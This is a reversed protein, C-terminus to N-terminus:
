KENADNENEESRWKDALQHAKEIDKPQASKDGGCLLLILRDGDQLYYVRYGPGYSLRLESVGRGIPRVDGPNGHALRDIREM